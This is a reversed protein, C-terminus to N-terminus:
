YKRNTISEERLRVPHLPIPIILDIGRLINFNQLFERFLNEFVTKYQLKQNYKFRHILEKINTDYVCISYAKHFYYQKNICGACIGSSISEMNRLGRGCKLCFPPIHRKIKSYCEHCIYGQNEKLYNPKKCTVCIPPYVIDIFSEIITKLMNVMNVGVLSKTLKLM